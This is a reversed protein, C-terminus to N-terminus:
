ETIMSYLRRFNRFNSEDPRRIATRHLSRQLSGKAFHLDPLQAHEYDEIKVLKKLLEKRMKSAMDQPEGLILDIWDAGIYNHLFDIQTSIGSVDFRHFEDLLAQQMILTLAVFETGTSSLFTTLYVKDALVARMVSEYDFAEGPKLRDIHYYPTARFYTGITGIESEVEVENSPDVIAVECDYLPWDIKTQCLVSLPLVELAELNVPAIFKPLEFRHELTAM